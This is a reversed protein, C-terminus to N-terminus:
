SGWLDTSLYKLGSDNVLVVLTQGRCSTALLGLAAAVNAGSSFGAFIGEERALRRAAQVADRDAVQIYGDVHEPRLMPLHAMSYGGGQIRHNPNTAPEGALVAAGEPEVVFCQISPRYEKFAAACGAFSGGSGVFDCFADFEGRSQRLIERATHLSHARANSLLRFQDARFAKREKAIRQAEREVRELDGGSVQGPPSGPLQDVLVVEAGLATMMRAREM